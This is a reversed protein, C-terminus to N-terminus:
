WSGTAVDRSSRGIPAHEHIKIVSIEGDVELLAVAVDEIMCKNARLAEDFESPSVNNRRLAQVLVKGDRALVEPEGDVLREISPSRSTAWSVGKNITILTAAAIMAGMVSHDNGILGNQCAEGILILVVLDFPTFEGVTRKGSLRIFVLLGCYILVARLVVTWWAADLDWLENM